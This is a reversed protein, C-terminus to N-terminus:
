QRDRGRRETLPKAIVSLLGRTRAAGAWARRPSRDALRCSGVRQADSLHAAAGRGGPAAHAPRAPRGPRARGPAAPRRSADAHLRATLTSLVLRQIEPVVMTARLAEAPVELLTTDADAVVDATRPSGTLAAIEGFFDGAGMTSLGRYGGDTRSAPRRRATSSSTRRRPRTATSSSARAPRSRASPPAEAHVGRAARATLRAFTPSGAPWGTSTPWPPRGRGAAPWAGARGRRGRRASGRAARWTAVGLGPAVLTFAASVFLLSSAVIILLRIDVIDALGAGAMGLLFIVDRMVYFASFVRGRMERPTNRQLLM